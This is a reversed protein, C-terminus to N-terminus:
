ENSEADGLPASTSKTALDPLRGVFTWGKASDPSRVDGPSRSHGAADLAAKPKLAM